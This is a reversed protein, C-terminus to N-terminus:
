HRTAQKREAEERDELHLLLLRETEGGQWWTQSIEARRQFHTFETPSGSFSCRWQPFFARFSSALPQSFLRFCRQLTPPSCVGSVLVQPLLCTWKDFIHLAWAYGSDVEDKNWGLKRFLELTCFGASAKEGPLHKSVTHLRQLLVLYSRQMLCFDTRELSGHRKEHFSLCSVRAKQSVGM